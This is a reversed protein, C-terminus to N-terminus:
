VTISSIAHRNAIAIHYKPPRVTWGGGSTTMDCYVDLPRWDEGVYVQYVGDVAEVGLKEKVEACDSVGTVFM